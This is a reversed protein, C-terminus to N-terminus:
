KIYDKLINSPDDVIEWKGCLDPDELSSPTTISYLYDEDSDDIVRIFGDEMGVVSYIRGDTLSDVGFSKGVYRVRGITDYVKEAMFLIDYLCGYKLYKQYAPTNRSLETSDLGNFADIEIDNLTDLMEYFAQVSMDFGVVCPASNCFGLKVLNNDEIQLSFSVAPCIDPLLSKIKDFDDRNIKLQVM